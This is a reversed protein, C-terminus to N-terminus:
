ITKVKSDTGIPIKSVVKLVGDKYVGTGILQGHENFVEKTEPNFFFKAIKESCKEM